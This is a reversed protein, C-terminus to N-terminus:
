LYTLRELVKVPMVYPLPFGVAIEQSPHLEQISSHDLANIPVIFDGEAALV